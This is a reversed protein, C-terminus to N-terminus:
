TRSPGALAYRALAERLHQRDIPKSLYDDMGAALCRERDGAMANATMAIIPIHSRDAEKERIKKTAEFGDMHPMQCDMFIIDFVETTTELVQLAQQGDGAVTVTAGLITLLRTALKQNTPNDEVLLVKAAIPGAPVPAAPAPKSLKVAASTEVELSQMAITFHFQSGKGLESEVWIRGGLLEVLRRCIALGLGTGGFKRTTGGDAQTFPDFILALKDRPIGIGTDAVVFHIQPHTNPDTESFVRLSVSGDEPTFKIANGILNILVQRIRVEDALISREKLGETTVFLGVGKTQCPVKFQQVTTQIFSDLDVPIPNLEIKGAEVKSLDLIDNIIGLLSQSSEMVTSLLDTQDADLKSELVLQTMGMIANMPTRIEHSMNALFESKARNSAEIKENAAKLSEAYEELDRAQLEIRSRALDVEQAYNFLRREALKENSIDQILGRLTFHGKGDRVSEGIARVWIKRGKATVFPLELDWNFPQTLGQEMAEAIVRRAEPAYFQIANLLTPKYSRDVEHIAYVEDSWVMAQTKVDLEWGGIKAIRATQELLSKASMMATEAKIRDTIDTQTGVMRVPNGQEDRGMVKGRDLVWRWSNDRHRLRHTSEYTDTEGLICARLLEGRMGVDEPHIKATWTNLDASTERTDYGLMSAWRADFFIRGRRIDWDWLGLAGGTLALELRQSKEELLLEATKRETLDSFVWVLMRVSGADDCVSVVTSSMWLQSDQSTRLSIDSNWVIGENFARCMAEWSPDLLIDPWIVGDISVGVETRSEGLVERLRGNVRMIIRRPDTVVLVCHHEIAQNLASLESLAAEAAARAVQAEDRSRRFSLTMEYAIKEAKFRTRQVLGVLMGVLITITGGLWLIMRGHDGVQLQNFRDTSQSAITFRHGDIVMSEVRRLRFPLDAAPADSEPHNAFLLQGYDSGDGDFVEMSIQNDTTLGLQRLAGDLVFPVFVWGRVANARDEATGLPLRMDYIARAIFFGERVPKDFSMPVRPTIVAENSAVAAELAAVVGPFRGVDVGRLAENGSRPDLFKVIYHQDEPTLYKLEFSSQGDARQEAVFRDIENSPVRVIVGFGTAGPFELDLNRSKVYAEFDERRVDLKKAAFVGRAGNLGYVYNKLRRYVESDQRDVLGDFITQNKARLTSSEKLYFLLTVIASFLCTAIVTVYLGGRQPTAHERGPM